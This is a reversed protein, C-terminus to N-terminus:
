LCCLSSILTQFKKINLLNLVYLFLTLLDNFFISNMPKIFLVDSTNIVLLYIDNDYSYHFTLHGDFPVKLYVNFTIVETVLTRSM